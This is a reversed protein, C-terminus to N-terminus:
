SRKKEAPQNRWSSYDKKKTTDAFVENTQADEILAQATATARDLGEPTVVLRVQV